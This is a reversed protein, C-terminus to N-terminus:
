NYRHRVSDKNALMVDYKDQEGRIVALKVQQQLSEWWDERAYGHGLPMLGKNYAEILIKLGELEVDRGQQKLYSISARYEYEIDRDQKIGFRDPYRIKMWSDFAQMEATIDNAYGRYYTITQGLLFDISEVSIEPFVAEPDKDAHKLFNWYKHRQGLYKKDWEKYFKIEEPKKKIALDTVVSLASYVINFIPICDGQLVVLRVAFNM